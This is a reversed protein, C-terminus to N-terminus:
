SIPVIGMTEFWNNHDADVGGGWANYNITLEEGQYITTVAIFLLLKGDRDAAYRLNSPNSHNYMSGFGAALAYLDEAKALTTWDFLLTQVEIPLSLQKPILIVPCKEVIEGCHFMQNAYVGRGKKTGTDKVILKSTFVVFGDESFDSSDSLPQGLNM